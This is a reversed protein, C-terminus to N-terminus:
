QNRIEQLCISKKYNLLTKVAISIIGFSLGLLVIDAIILPVNGKPIFQRVLMGVLMTLTTILM